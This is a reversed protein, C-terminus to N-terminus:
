MLRKMLSRIEKENEIMENEIMEDEIVENEIMENEIMENEIMEDEIMENELVNEDKKENVNTSMLQISESISSEKLLNLILLIAHSLHTKTRVNENTQSESSRDKDKIKKLDSMALLSDLLFDISDIEDSFTMKKVTTKKTTTKMATTKMAATKMAATKMEATKMKVNARIEAIARMTANERRNLEAHLNQTDKTDTNSKKIM